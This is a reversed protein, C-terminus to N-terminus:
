WERKGRPTDANRDEAPFLFDIPAWWGHKNECLGRGTHNGVPNDFGVLPDRSDADDLITGFEGNRPSQHPSQYVIRDGVKFRSM